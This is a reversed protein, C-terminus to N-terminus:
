RMLQEKIAQELVAYKEHDQTDLPSGGGQLESQSLIRNGAAPYGNGSLSQSTPNFWGLGIMRQQDGSFAFTRSYGVGDTFSVFYTDQIPDYYGLAATTTSKGDEYGSAYVKGDSGTYRTGPFVVWSGDVLSILSFSFQWEGDFYGLQGGSYGFNLHTIQRTGGPFTITGSERSSFVIAMNGGANGAKAPAKYTCVLCSGNTANAFTSTFTQANEDYLGASLYWIQKGTEDFVYSTVIMINNQTEINFGQGDITSTQWLGPAPLFAFASQSVLALSFLLAKM